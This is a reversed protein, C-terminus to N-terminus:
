LIVQKIMNLAIGWTLHKGLSNFYREGVEGEMGTINDEEAWVRCFISKQCHKGMRREKGSSRHSWKADTLFQSCSSVNGSVWCKYM